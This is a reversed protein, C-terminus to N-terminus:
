LSRGPGISQKYEADPEPQLKPLFDTDESQGEEQRKGGAATVGRAHIGVIFILALAPNHNLTLMAERALIPLVQGSRGEFPSLETREATFGAGGGGSPGGWHWRASCGARLFTERYKPSM